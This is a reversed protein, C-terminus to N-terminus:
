QDHTSSKLAEAYSQTGNDNREGAKGRKERWVEKSKRQVRHHVVGGSTKVENSQVGGVKRVYGDRRYRPLNVYLKMKGIYSRDLERELSVVNEIGFFRVFGFRRGWRNRRRSIFVEKVRAWKQFFKLMEYEVHSASFNSFFFTTFSNSPLPGLVLGCALGGFPLNPGVM